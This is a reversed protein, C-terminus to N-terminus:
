SLGFSIGAALLHVGGGVIHACVGSSKCPESLLREVRFLMFSEDPTHDEDSRLGAM